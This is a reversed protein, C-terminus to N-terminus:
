QILIKSNVVSSTGRMNEAMQVCYNARELEKEVTLIERIANNAITIYTDM